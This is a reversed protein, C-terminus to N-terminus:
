NGKLSSHMEFLLRLIFMNLDMFQILKQYFSRTKRGPQTKFIYLIGYLIKGKKWPLGLSPGHCPIPGIAVYCSTVRGKWLEWWKAPHSIWIWSGRVKLPYSSVILSLRIPVMDSRKTCTWVRWGSWAHLRIIKYWRDVVIFFVDLIKFQLILMLNFEFGPAEWLIMLNYINKVFIWTEFSFSPFSLCNFQIKWFYKSSNPFLFCHQFLYCSFVKCYWTCVECSNWNKTSRKREHICLSRGAVNTSCCTLKWHQFESLLKKSYKDVYIMEAFVAHFLKIFVLKMMYWAFSCMTVIIKWAFWLSM